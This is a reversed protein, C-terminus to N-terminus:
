PIPSIEPTRLPEPILSVDELLWLLAAYEKRISDAAASFTGEPMARLNSQAPKLRLARKVQPGDDINHFLYDQSITLVHECDPWPLLMSRIQWNTLRASEITEDMLLQDRSARWRVM